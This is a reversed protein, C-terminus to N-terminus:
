ISVSDLFEEPNDDFEEKCSEECFYIIKNNYNSFILETKENVCSKCGCASTVPSKHKM